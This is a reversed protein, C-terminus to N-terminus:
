DEVIQFCCDEYEYGRRSMLYQYAVNQEIARQANETDEEYWISQGFGHTDAIREAVVQAALEEVTNGVLRRNGHKEYLTVLVSMNM